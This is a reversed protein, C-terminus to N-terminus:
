GTNTSAKTKRERKGKKINEKTEYNDIFELINDYVEFQSNRDELDLSALEQQEYEGLISASQASKYKVYLQKKEKQIRQIFAYYIIQTFYAFPNQSITPNFNDIYMICNKIADGVMEDRFSYSAFNPKRSLKDAIMMICKAIYDPIVPKKDGNLKANECKEKYEILAFLFDPNNVYHTKTM